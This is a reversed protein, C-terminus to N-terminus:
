LHVDTCQNNEYRQRQLGKYLYNEKSYVKKEEKEGWAYFNGADMPSAAGVNCCAWKTGSPLGLDIKHPHHDDPCYQAQVHCVILAMIITSAIKKM